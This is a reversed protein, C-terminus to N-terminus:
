CTIASGWSGDWWNTHNAICLTPISRDWAAGAELVPALRVTAFHKAVQSRVYREFGSLVITRLRRSM